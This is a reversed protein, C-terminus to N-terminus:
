AGAAETEYRQFSRYGSAAEERARAVYANLGGMYVLIGRKKGPINGGTFWSPAKMFLSANGIALVEATWAEEAERSPALASIGERDMWAICDGIWDVTAEVLLPVNSAAASGPGNILFMNPFGAVTMGMFSDPGDRWHDVLSEGSGNVPNIATFSGTLADFGIALVIVDFEQHGASTQIGTETVRSVPTERLDVLSVNDQGFAELYGADCIPRRTAIPYDTPILKERLVPDPIREAMKRRVYDAVFENVEENFLVDIFATAYGADGEEEWWQDLIATREDTTMDAAAMGSSFMHAGVPDNRMRARYEAYGQKFQASDTENWPPNSTPTTYAASRQFVTLHGATKAIETIAQVGSAGTGFIAVRKGEFSVPRRPWNSTRYLEGRFSEVGPFEPEKEASFNGSALIVFRATLQAGTQTSVHWLGGDDDRGVGTVQTNFRISRRLDFRDVVHRLYSLIEAQPSFRHSWQWDRQLEESFSYSYDVSPLDCRCGPYGNFLWVGGVDDAAELCLVNLGQGRLRQIAYLGGFGAGVVIVDHHEAGQAVGSGSFM